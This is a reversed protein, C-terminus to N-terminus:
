SIQLDRRGGLAIIYCAISRVLLPSCVTQNENQICKSHLSLLISCNAIPLSLSFPGHFLKSSFYYNIDCIWTFYAESGAIAVMGQECVLWTTQNGMTHNM